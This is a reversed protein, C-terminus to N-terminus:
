VSTYRLRPDAVVPLTEEVDVSSSPLRPTLLLLQSLGVFHTPFGTVNSEYSGWPKPLPDEQLWATVPPQHVWLMPAVREADRLNWLKNGHCVDPAMPMSTM